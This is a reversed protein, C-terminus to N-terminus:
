LAESGRKKIAASKHKQKFHTPLSVEELAKAEEADLARDNVAGKLAFGGGVVL